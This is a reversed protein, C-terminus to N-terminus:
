RHRESEANEGKHEGSDAKEARARYRSGGLRQWRLRDNHFLNGSWLGHDGHGCRFRFWNVRNLYANIILQGTGLKTLLECTQHHDGNSAHIGIALELKQLAHWSGAEEHQLSVEL